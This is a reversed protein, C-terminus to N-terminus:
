PGSKRSDALREMMDAIVLVEYKMGAQKAFHALEEQLVAGGDDDTGTVLYADLITAPGLTVRRTTGRDEDNKVSREAIAAVTAGALEARALYMITDIKGAGFAGDSAELRLNKDSILIAADYLEPLAQNLDNLSFHFHSLDTSTAINELASIIEFFSKPGETASSNFKGQWARVGHRRVEIEISSTRMWRLLKAHLSFVTLSQPKAEDTKVILRGTTNSVIVEVPPSSFRIRGDSLASMPPKFGYVTGNLVMRPEKTPSFIRLECVDVPVPEIFLRGKGSFEEIQEPVGFRLDTYLFQEVDLGNGLGLFNHSFDEDNKASIILKGSGFGREYGVTTFQDRKKSIYSLSSDGVRQEMWSVIDGEVLDNPAFNLSMTARHLPKGELRAIRIQKLSRELLQGIVELGFVSGDNRVLFVFWPDHSNCAKLMNSLKVSTRTSLGVTSKIQVFAQKRPLTKEFPLDSPRDPFEVFYDWGNIDEDPKTAVADGWSCRQSFLKEAWRPVRVM